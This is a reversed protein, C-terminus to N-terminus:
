RKGHTDRFIGDHSSEIVMRISTTFGMPQYTM